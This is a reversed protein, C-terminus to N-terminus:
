KQSRFIAEVLANEIEATTEFSRFVMQNREAVDLRADIAGDAREYQVRRSPEFIHQLNTMLEKEDLMGQSDFLRQFYVLRTIRVPRKNEMEVVAEAFRIRKGAYNLIRENEDRKLLRRYKALVMRSIKSEDDIVFLRVSMM